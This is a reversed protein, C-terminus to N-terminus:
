QDAVRWQRGGHTVIETHNSFLAIDLPMDKRVAEDDHGLGHPMDAGNGDADPNAVARAAFGDLLIAERVEHLVHHEFAGLAAGGFGDRAFHVRDAAHEVSERGFLLDAEVCFNEVVVKRDSEINNRVKAEARKKIRFVHCFLALDDEFLDLHIEVIRFRQQVFNERAAEPGFMRESARNEASRVGNALKRTFGQLAAEAFPERRIMQQDGGGAINWVFFNEFQYLTFEAMWFRGAAKILVIRRLGARRDVDFALFIELLDM